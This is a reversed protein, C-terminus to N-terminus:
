GSRPPAPSDGLLPSLQSQLHEVHGKLVGVEVELRSLRDLLSPAPTGSPASETVAAIDFTPTGSLLHAFRCEKQGPQRSLKVVLAGQPRTLFGDLVKEVDTPDDFTCLRDARNRLEGPTQPGRLMLECLIAVDKEDLGITETFMHKFKPVRSGATSIMSALHKERLGDLALTVLDESYSVVPDRNNKQNCAAVLANLSLPYYEPTTVQKEILCALVRIEEATLHLESM